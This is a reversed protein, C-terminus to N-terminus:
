KQVSGIKLTNKLFFVLLIAFFVLFEFCNHEQHIQTM